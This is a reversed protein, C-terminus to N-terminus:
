ANQVAKGGYSLSCQRLSPVDTKTYGLTTIPNDHGMSNQITLLPIKNSLLCSALTHRLSHMAKREKVELGARRMYKKLQCSPGSSSQFEGYPAIHQVFVNKSETEVRGNKLYDVLADMIPALIPLSNVKGTKQQTYTILKRQWDFNEFKLRCIDGVRMGLLTALLIMAYDRKGVGGTRDISSFLTRLEDDTWTEPISEEAYLKPRPVFPSLDTQHIGIEHLYQFFCRLASVYINITVRSLGALTVMFDSIDASTLNELPKNIGQIFVFFERLKLRKVKRTGASNGGHECKEMYKELIEDYVRPMRYDRHRNRRAYGFQYVDDLLRLTCRADLQKKALETKLDTVDVDFMQLLYTPAVDEDYHTIGNTECYASFDRLGKCYKSHANDSFGLRYLDILAKDILDTVPIGTLKAMIM